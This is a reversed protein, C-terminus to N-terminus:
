VNSNPQAPDRVKLTENEADKNLKKGYWVTVLTALIAGVFGGLAMWPIAEYIYKSSEKTVIIETPTLTRYMIYFFVSFLIMGIPVTIIFMNVRLSSDPSDAKLFGWM